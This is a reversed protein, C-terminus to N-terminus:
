RQDSPLYGSPAIDPATLGYAGWTLGAGFSTLLLHDGPRITQDVLGHLMALPLSAATTNGIQDINTITHQPPVALRRALSTLININAQHGILITSTADWGLRNLVDQSAQSMHRVAMSFTAHGQMRLYPSEPSDDTHLLHALDGDSSWTGALLHGPGNHDAPARSIVVAGAGDGFIPRVSRDTPDTLTSYRDAGILVLSGIDGTELLARALHLGYLFGSCAANVDFAPATGAGLRAAVVPATAPCHRDPTSTAVIVADIGPRRTEGTGPATKVSALARTAAAAALDTTSVESFYRTRTGIHSVIWEDTTDLAPAFDANAVLRNGVVGGCGIIRAPSM